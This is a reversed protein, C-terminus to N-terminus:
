DTFPLLHSKGTRQFSSFEPHWWHGPCGSWNSTTGFTYRSFVSSIYRLGVTPIDFGSIVLLIIGPYEEWAGESEEVQAEDTTPAGHIQGCDQLEVSVASSLM